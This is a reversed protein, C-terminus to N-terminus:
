PMRGWFFNDGSTEGDSPCPPPGPDVLDGGVNGLRVKCEPVQACYNLSRWEQAGAPNGDTFGGPFFTGSPQSQTTIDGTLDAVVYYAVILLSTAELEGLPVHGDNMQSHPAGVSTLGGHTVCSYRRALDAFEPQPGPPTAARCTAVGGHGEAGPYFDCGNMNIMARNRIAWGVAIQGGLPEGRAENYIVEALGILWPAFISGSPAQLFFNANPGRSDDFAPMHFFEEVALATQLGIRNRLSSSKRAGPKPIPGVGPASQLLRRIENIEADVEGTDVGLEQMIRQRLLAVNWFLLREDRSFRDLVDLASRPDNSRLLHQAYRMHAEVSDIPKRMNIARRFYTDAARDGLRSLGEALDILAVYREGEDNAARIYEPFLADLSERDGLAIALEMIRKSHRVRGEAIALEAAALYSDLAERRLANLDDSESSAPFGTSLYTWIGDGLESLASERAKSGPPGPEAARRLDDLLERASDRSQFAGAGGEPGAHSVGTLVGLAALTLVATLLTSSRAM